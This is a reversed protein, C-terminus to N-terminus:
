LTKWGLNSKARGSIVQRMSDVKLNNNECFQKLNKIVLVDGTPSVLKYEKAAADRLKNRTNESHHKGFMPHKKKDKYRERASESIKIRVEQRKTPNKEGTRSESIKKKHESSLKIGGNRSIGANGISINQKHKETLKRGKRVASMKKRSENSLKGHSGGDRINYGIDRNRSNLKEIWAVEKGNLDNTTDELVQFVFATEGYKGFANQLHPNEHKNNKLNRIHIKWRQKFALRTQGVLVKNNVLNRVAYIGNMVPFERRQNFLFYKDMRCYSDIDM